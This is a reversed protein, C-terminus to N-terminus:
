STKNEIFSEVLQLCQECRGTDEQYRKETSAVESDDYSSV